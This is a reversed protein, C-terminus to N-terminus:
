DETFEMHPCFKDKYSKYWTSVFESVVGKKTPPTNLNKFKCYNIFRKIYYVCSGLIFVSWFAYGAELAGSPNTSLLTNDFYFFAIPLIVSTYLITGAWVLVISSMILLLLSFLIAKIFCNTYECFSLGGNHVKSKEDWNMGMTSIFRHLYSKKSIKM